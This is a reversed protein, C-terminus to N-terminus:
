LTVAKVLAAISSPCASEAVLDGVERHLHLGVSSLYKSNGRRTLPSRESVTTWRQSTSGATALASGDSSPLSFWCLTFVRSSTAAMTAVPWNQHFMLTTFYRLYLRRVWIMREVTSDRPIM